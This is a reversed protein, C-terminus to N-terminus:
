GLYPLAEPLPARGRVHQDCFGLVAENWVRANNPALIWHNESTFQLLRHPLDQPRGPWHSVLDWWLRLAESVPVRYDRVGHTVLMPTTIAAARLNPSSNQYWEPDEAATRHVRVKHAAADTTVHQQDPAYIGAHTVIARFRDTQGAIWNTMFGGFSAGLLATRGADLTRRRLVHDLLGQVEAWVVEPRRPWGRNLGAHGYGTSMAPDPLLVAYGQAVFPWPCWRWSWANYSGHPGGHVWLMLPAPRKASAGDPTCLWGGVEIGGVTTGVWELRGPLSRIRGPANITHREPTRGTALRVPTNPTDITSRLAYVYRGDQSPRLCSYAADDALTRRVKGTRPDVVLVAGKSHLDGAVYLTRGDPAWAYEGVTLDGVNVTVPDGGDVPHLELFDYGTDTPTSTTYRTLAITTGDPSFKPVDYGHSATGRLLQRRRNTATDILAIGTVSQGHRIRRTWTTAVLRGDPSLDASANLLAVTDAGPTLDVPGIGSRVLVLRPSTDGVEHDWYRIPMGTHWIATIGGDKRHKRREADDALTGGALVSTTALVTGDAAVAAIGLGGPADALVSAEGHVPLRWIATSSDDDATPDPRSSTFLLLGDPSFRPSTEGKGSFTIRRPAAGGAPDLEWLASRYRACHEDPQQVSAVLRTGDPSPSLDTIRAVALLADLNGWDDFPDAPAAPDPTAPATNSPAARRAARRSSRHRRETPM